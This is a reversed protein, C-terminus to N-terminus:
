RRSLVPMAEELLVSGPRISWRKDVLTGNRSGLRELIVELRVTLCARVPVM